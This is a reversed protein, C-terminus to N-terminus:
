SPCCSKDCSVCNINEELTKEFYKEEVITLIPNYVSKFRLGLNTAMILPLLRPLYIKAITKEKGNKYKTKTCIEFKPLDRYGYVLRLVDECTQITIMDKEDRIKVMKKCYKKWQDRDLNIPLGTSKKFLATLARRFAKDKGIRRNYSDLVSKISVGRSIVKDTQDLLLCVTLVTGIFPVRIDDIEYFKVKTAGVQDLLAKTKAKM